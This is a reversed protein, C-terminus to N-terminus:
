RSLSTTYSLSVTLVDHRLSPPTRSLPPPDSLISMQETSPRQAQTFVTRVGPAYRLTLALTSAAGVPYGIGAGVLLGADWRRVLDHQMLEIRQDVVDSPVRVTRRVTGGTARSVTLGGAVHLLLPGPMSVDRRGLVHAQLYSMQYQESVYAEPDVRSVHGGKRVYALESQVSAQDTVPVIVHLGAHGDLRVNTNVAEDDESVFPISSDNLFGFSPGLRVGGRLEQARIETPSLLVLALCLLGITRSSFPRLSAPLSPVPFQPVPAPSVCKPRATLRETRLM